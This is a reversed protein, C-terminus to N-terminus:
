LTKAPIDDVKQAEYKELTFNPINFKSKAKFAWAKVLCLSDMHLGRQFGEKEQVCCTNHEKNMSIVTYPGIIKPALKSKDPNLAWM